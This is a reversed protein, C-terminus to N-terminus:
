NCGLEQLTKLIVEKVTEINNIVENNSFRIVTYGLCNLCFEKKEDELKGTVSKHSDGDVEICLKYQFNTFDPKYNFGLHKEPYQKRLAYTSIAKNYVFGNSICFDYLLQECPSIKGNGGHTGLWTHLIGKQEKTNNSKQVIGEMYVPNNTTM